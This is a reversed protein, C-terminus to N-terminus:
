AQEETDDKGLLDEFPDYEEFVETEAARENDRTEAIKSLRKSSAWLEAVLMGVLFFSLTGALSVIIGLFQLYPIYTM